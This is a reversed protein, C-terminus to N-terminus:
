DLVDDDTTATLDLVDDDGSDALDFDPESDGGPAHALTREGAESAEADGTIDVFTKAAEGAPEVDAVAGEAFLARDPSMETWMAVASEWLPDSDGVADFLDRAANEYEARDNSSYYVELLRLKYEHRDPYQGIVRKVLEEAQDFREYALYVNIEELPDEEDAGPAAPMAPLDTATTTFAADGDAAAEVTANPDFESQADGSAGIETVAESDDDPIDTPATVTPDESDIEPAAKAKAVSVAPRSESEGGRSKMLFGIVAAFLGLIAAAILGLVTLAGGPVMAAIHEPILSHPFARAPTPQESAATPAPGTDDAAEDAVEDDVAVMDDDSDADLDSDDVVEDGALVEEDPEDDAMDPDDSSAADDEVMGADGHEIGLEALRAQLAALEEDKINVQRQLLDIIEEAELLKGSLEDNQQARADIEERLLDSGGAAGRGPSGGSDTGGPAILELRSDAASGPAAPATDDTAAAPAGVPQSTPVEAIQNRYNEWLQHQRQVEAFAEGASITRLSDADPLRLVAGRRLLNINGEGFAEPNERLLALMMQQVTVSEDPRISSAISWLTDTSTVPGYQNGASYSAVSPSPAPAPPATAAQPSTAAPAPAAATTAQARRRNADYLPPDLLVTYERLLRGNSWNLEVLFNLFPERIPDKSTISIFDKGSRNEELSFKLQYLLPNLSIGARKFQELSALKVTLADFDGASAGILEIRGTFPENLSSSSQLTGLGLAIVLPSAFLGLILAVARNRLM